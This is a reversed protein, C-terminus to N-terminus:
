AAKTTKSPVPDITETDIRAFAERRLYRSSTQWEVNQGFLVAGILRMILSENPLSLWQGFASSM